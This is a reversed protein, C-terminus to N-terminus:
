RGQSNQGVAYIGPDGWAQRVLALLCGITAPDNVDLRIIMDPTFEVRVADLTAPHTVYMYGGETCIHAIRGLGVLLM